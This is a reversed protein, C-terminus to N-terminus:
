RGGRKKSEKTRYEGAKVEADICQKRKRDLERRYQSVSM